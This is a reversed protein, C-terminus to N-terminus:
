TQLYTEISQARVAKDGRSMFQQRTRSRGADVEDVFAAATGAHPETARFPVAGFIFKRPQSARCRAL